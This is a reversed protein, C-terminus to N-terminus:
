LWGLYEATCFVTSTLPLKLAYPLDFHRHARSLAGQARCGPQGSKVRIQGKSIAPHCQDLQGDREAETKLDAAHTNFPFAHIHYNTKTM